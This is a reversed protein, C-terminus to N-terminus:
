ITQYEQSGGLANRLWIMQKGWLKKHNNQFEVWQYNSKLKTNNHLGWFYIQSGISMQNRLTQDLMMKTNNKIVYNITNAHSWGFTTNIFVCVYSYKYFYRLVSVDVDFLVEGILTSPNKWGVRTTPKFLNRRRLLLLQVQIKSCLM